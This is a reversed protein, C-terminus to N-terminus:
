DREGASMGDRAPTRPVLWPRDPDDASTLAALPVGYVSELVGPTLVEEPSGTAVSKGDHLLLIHACFRAALNIDHTVVVVALGDLAARDRLIRFIALQHQLDLSATPEDLLLVQPEQALAAAVHVRQAEGGSLTTLPRDAFALTGTTEMARDAIRFDEPSEFLGLSRHPFRGLLVVERVSLDIDGPSRQPVYAIIQARRRPSLHRLSEHRSHHIDTRGGGAREKNLLPTISLLVDGHHPTTLGAMLRILTSKGAGNPGVIAWYQGASVSISIPGLFDPRTPFGYRVDCLELRAAGDTYGAGKRDRYQDTPRM